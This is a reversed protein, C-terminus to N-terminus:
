TREWERIVGIYLFLDCLKLEGPFEGGDTPYTTNKTKVMVYYGFVNEDRM